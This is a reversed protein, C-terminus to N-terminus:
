INYNHSWAEMKKTKSMAMRKTRKTAPSLDRHIEVVKDLRKEKSGAQLAKLLWVTSLIWRMEVRQGDHRTKTEMQISATKLGLMM